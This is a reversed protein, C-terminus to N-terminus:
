RVMRGKWTYKKVFLSIFGVITIYFPYILLSLILYGCNVRKNFFKSISYIFYSDVILKSTIIVSVFLFSFWGTSFLIFIDFLLLLNTLFVLVIMGSLGTGVYAKTKTAWRIRQNLFDKITKEPYTYVISKMNKLFSISNKDKKAVAGVLFIDDGSSFDNDVDLNQYMSKRYSMNAGNAMFFWKSNIGAATIGMTTLLDYYQFQELLNKGEFFLVPATVFQLNKNKLHIVAHSIIWKESVVTDADTQLILEGNAIKVAQKIAAKKHNVPKKLDILDKLEFFKFNAAKISKLVAISNDDSNDDIYIVEYQHEPYENALISEICPKINAAENRGVIIVTVFPLEKSIASIETGSTKLKNWYFYLSVIFVM